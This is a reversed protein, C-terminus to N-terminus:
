LLVGANRSEGGHTFGTGRQFVDAEVPFNLQDDGAANTVARICGFRHSEAGSRTVYSGSGEHREIAVLPDILIVVPRNSRSRVSAVMAVRSSARNTNRRLIRFQHLAQVDVLASLAHAIQQLRHCEFDLHKGTGASFRVHVMQFWFIHSCESQFSGRVAAERQNPGSLSKALLTMRAEM